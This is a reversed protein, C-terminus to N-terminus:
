RLYKDKNAIHEEFTIAYHPEGEKDHLYFWYPTEKPFISAKIADLGPNGIPGKPLGPYKYTNYPSDIHLDTTTLEASSKGTLYSLSADVQLPRGARLRKWLIGAVIARDDGNASEKEVISSMIIIDQLSHNQKAIAGKLPEIKQEFNDRMLKVLEAASVNEFVQYTDPFLYGEQGDSAKVFEKISVLKENSLYQAIEYNTAGEMIRIRREASSSTILRVLSPTSIPNRFIYNGPKINVDVRILKAYLLFYTSNRIIGEHYLADAITHAGSGKEITITKEAQLGPPFIIGLNFLIWFICVVIFFLSSAVLFRPDIFIPKKEFNEASQQEEQM